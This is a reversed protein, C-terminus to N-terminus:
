TLQLRGLGTTHLAVSLQPELQRRSSAGRHPTRSLDLGSSAQLLAGNCSGSFLIESSGSRKSCGRSAANTGSALDIESVLGYKRVPM